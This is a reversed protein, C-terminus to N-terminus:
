CHFRDASTEIIPALQLLFAVEEVSFWVTRYDDVGRIAPYRVACIEKKPFEMADGSRKVLRARGSRYRVELRTQQMSCCLDVFFSNKSRLEFKTVSLPM